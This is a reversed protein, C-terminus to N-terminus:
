DGKRHFRRTNVGLYIIVLAVALAFWQVAYGVHKEPSITEVPSWDYQLSGSQEKDLVLSLPMLNFNRLKELNSIDLNQLVVKKEFSELSSEGMVLGVSEPSDLHGMLSVRKRPLPLDPLVKRSTGVSVWGRNVLLRKNNSLELMSFVHYGPQGMYLRNDLLWQQKSAYIGKVIAPRFRDLEKDMSNTNLNLPAAAQRISKRDVLAQKEEARNMQWNGLSILCILVLFFVVTPIINPSFIFQGFKLKM